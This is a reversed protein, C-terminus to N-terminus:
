SGKECNGASISVTLHLHFSFKVVRPEYSTYVCMVDDVTGFIEQAVVPELYLIPGGQVVVHAPPCGNYAGIIYLVITPCSILLPYQLACGICGITYLCSIARAM